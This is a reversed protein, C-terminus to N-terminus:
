NHKAVTQGVSSWVVNPDLNGMTCPVDKLKMVANKPITPAQVARPSLPVAIICYMAPAMIAPASNSVAIPKEPNIPHTRRFSDGTTMPGTMMRMPSDSNWCPAGFAPVCQGTEPAVTTRIIRNEKKKDRLLLIKRINGNTRAMTITHPAHASSEAVPTKSASWGEYM